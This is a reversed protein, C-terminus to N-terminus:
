MLPSAYKSFRPIWDFMEGSLNGNGVLPLETVNEGNITMIIENEGVELQGEDLIKLLNFVIEEVVGTVHRLYHPVQDESLLSLFEDDISDGKAARVVKEPHSQKLFHVLNDLPQERLATIILKGFADLHQESMTRNSMVLKKDFIVRNFFYLFYLWVM